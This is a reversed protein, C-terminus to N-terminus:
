AELAVDTTKIITLIQADTSMHRHAFRHLIHIHQTLINNTQTCYTHKTYDTNTNKLHTTHTCMGACTYVTIHAYKYTPM